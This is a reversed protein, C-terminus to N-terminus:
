EIEGVAENAWLGGRVASEGEGQLTELKLMTPAEEGYVM